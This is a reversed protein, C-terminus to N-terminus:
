LTSLYVKEAAKRAITNALYLRNYENNILHGVRNAKKIDVETADTPRGFRHGENGTVWTPLQVDVPRLASTANTSRVVNKPTRWKSLEELDGIDADDM